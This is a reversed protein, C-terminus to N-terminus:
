PMLEWDEARRVSLTLGHVGDVVVRDGLRLEPDGNVDLARTRARWLAGDVLVQGEGDPGPARRVVGVHGALGEAGGRPRQRRAALVKPGAIALFGAGLAGVGVAVPIAVVAAAGSATLGLVVGAVMALTGAVGLGGMTPWHAEAVLLAAGVVLLVIGLPLVHGM